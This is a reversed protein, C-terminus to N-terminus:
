ACLVHALVKALGQFVFPRACREVESKIPGPENQVRVWWACVVLVRHTAGCHCLDLWRRGSRPDEVDM